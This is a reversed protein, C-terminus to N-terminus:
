RSSEGCCNLDPENHCTTLFTETAPVGTEDPAAESGEDPNPLLLPPSELWVVPTAPEEAPIRALVFPLGLAFIAPSRTM